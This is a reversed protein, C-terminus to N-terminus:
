LATQIFRSRCVRWPMAALSKMNMPITPVLALFQAPIIQDTDINDQVVYVPGEFVSKTMFNISGAGGFNKLELEGDENWSSRIIDGITEGIPM